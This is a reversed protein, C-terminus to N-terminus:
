VVLSKIWKIFDDGEKLSIQYGRSKAIEKAVPQFSSTTIVMAMNATDDFLRFWLRTIPEPGVLRTESYRKCEVLMLVPAAPTDISAIVDRGKDRSRPTLCVQYGMKDLLEAVTEEFVRPNLRFRDQPFKALRALLEDTVASYIEIRQQTAEYIIRLSGKSLAEAVSDMFEGPRPAAWQAVVVQPPYKSFDFREWGGFNALSIPTQPTANAVQSIESKSCNLLIFLDASLEENILLAEECSSVQHLDWIGNMIGWDYLEELDLDEPDQVDQAVYIIQIPNRKGEWIEDWLSRDETEDFYGDTATDTPNKM